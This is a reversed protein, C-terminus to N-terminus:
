EFLIAHSVYGTLNAGTPVEKGAGPTTTATLTPKAASGTMTVAGADPTVTAAPQAPTAPSAQTGGTPYFARIRDTAEDWALILLNGGSLAPGFLAARVGSLELANLDAASLPYGGAPYSSDLTITAHTFLSGHRDRSTKRHIKAVALAM